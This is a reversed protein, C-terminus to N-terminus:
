TDRMIPKGLLLKGLQDAGLLGEYGPELVGVVTTM